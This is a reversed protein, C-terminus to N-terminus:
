QWMEPYVVVDVRRNAEKGLAPANSAFPHNAGHGVVFLQEPRYYNRNVFAEFVIMARAM